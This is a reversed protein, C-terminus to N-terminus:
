SATCTTCCPPTCRGTTTRIRCWSSGPSPTPPTSLVGCQDPHIEFIRLADDLGRVQGGRYATEARPSLGERVARRTWEEWVMSPGGFHLALYGDLALHLPLFRLSVPRGGPARGKGRRPGSQAAFHLPACAVPDRGDGLQTGYAAAPSGDGTWDAM